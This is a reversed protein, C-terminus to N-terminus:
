LEACPLPIMEQCSIARYNGRILNLHRLSADKKLSNVNILLISLPFIYLFQM